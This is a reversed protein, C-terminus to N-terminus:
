RDPFSDIVTGSGPQHMDFFLLGPIRDGPNSSNGARFTRTQLFQNTTQPLARVIYQPSGFDHFTGGVDGFIKLTLPTKGAMVQNTEIDVGPVSSEIRLYHAVTHNPGPEISPDGTHCGVLLLASTFTVLAHAISKIGISM